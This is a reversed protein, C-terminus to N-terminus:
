FEYVQTLANGGNTTSHDFVSISTQNEDNEDIRFTIIEIVECQLALM